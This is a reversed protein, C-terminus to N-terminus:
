DSSIEQLQHSNSVTDHTNRHHTRVTQMLPDQTHEVYEELKIVEATYAGEKQMLGRRPNYLRHIDARPHHQGHITLILLSRARQEVLVNLEDFFVRGENGKQPTSSYMRHVSEKRKATILDM